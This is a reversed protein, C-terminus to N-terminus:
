EVHVRQRDDAFTSGAYKGAAGAGPAESQVVVLREVAAALHSPGLHSYRMVMALTRWGGLQEVTRLDVGAM